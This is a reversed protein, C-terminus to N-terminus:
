ECPLYPPVPLNCTSGKKVIQCLLPDKDGDNIAIPNYCLKALSKYAETTEAVYNVVAQCNHFAKCNDLNSYPCVFCLDDSKGEQTIHAVLFSESDLHFAVVTPTSKYGEYRIKFQLFDGQELNAHLLLFVSELNESDRTVPCQLRRKQLQNTEEEGSGSFCLLTTALAVLALRTLAM